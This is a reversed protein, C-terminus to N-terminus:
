EAAKSEGEAEEENKPLECQTKAALEELSQEGSLRSGDTFIWTPYSNVKKDLCAQPDADAGRPDCEIYKLKEVAQNGFLKKQNQCHPCWYAGYMTTGKDSLCQAFAVYKDGLADSCGSLIVLAIASIAFIKFSRKSEQPM